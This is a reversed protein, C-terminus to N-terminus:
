PNCAYPTLRELIAKAYEYVLDFKEEQEKLRADMNDEPSNWPNEPIYKINISLYGHCQFISIRSELLEREVRNDLTSESPIDYLSFGVKHLWNEGLDARQFKNFHQLWVENYDESGYEEEIDSLSAYSDQYLREVEEPDEIYIFVVEGLQDSDRILEVEAGYAIEPFYNVCSGYYGGCLGRMPPYPQTLDYVTSTQWSGGLYEGPNVLLAIEAPLYPFSPSFNAEEAAQTESLARAVLDELPLATETPPVEPQKAFCGTLLISFLFLIFNERKMNIKKIM